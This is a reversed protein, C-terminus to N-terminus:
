GKELSGFSIQRNGKDAESKRNRKNKERDRHWVTKKKHREDTKKGLAEM